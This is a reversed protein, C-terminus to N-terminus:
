QLAAAAQPLGYGHFILMAAALYVIGVTQLEACLGHRQFLHQLELLRFRFFNIFFGPLPFMNGQCRFQAAGRLGHRILHVAQKRAAIGWFAFGALM